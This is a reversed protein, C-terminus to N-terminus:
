LANQLLFRSLQKENRSNRAIEDAIRFDPDSKSGWGCGWFEKSLIRDADLDRISIRVLSFRTLAFAAGM